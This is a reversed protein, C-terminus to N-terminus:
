RGDVLAGPLVAKMQRQHSPLKGWTERDPAGAGVSDLKADLDQRREVKEKDEELALCYLVDFALSAPLGLLDQGGM